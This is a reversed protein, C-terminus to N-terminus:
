SSTVQEWASGTYFYLKYNKASPGGINYIILRKTAAPDNTVESNPLSHHVKLNLAEVVQKM